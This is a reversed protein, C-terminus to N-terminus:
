RRIRDHPYWCSVVASIYECSTCKGRVMLSSPPDPPRRLNEPFAPELYAKHQMLDELELLILREVRAYYKSPEGIGSLDEHLDAVSIAELSPWVARLKMTVAPCQNKWEKM